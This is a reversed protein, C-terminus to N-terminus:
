LVVAIPTDALRVGKVALWLGTLLEAFFDPILFIPDLMSRTQPFLVFVLCCLLMEVSSFLYLGSIARPIYNAKYLLWSHVGAGLCFFILGMLGLRSHLGFFISSFLKLQDPNIISMLHPNSFLDLRVLSVAVDVGLLVANAIRWFSGLLALTSNVPELLAYLALALIVDCNLMIIECALKGRFVREHELLNRATAVPNGSVVERVGFAFMGILGSVMLLLLTFGAIRAAIRQSAETTDEAM